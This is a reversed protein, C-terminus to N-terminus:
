GRRKAATEKAEEEAGVKGPGQLELKKSKKANQKDIEKGMGIDMLEDDNNNTNHLDM